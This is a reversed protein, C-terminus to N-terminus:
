SSPNVTADVDGRNYPSVINEESAVPSSLLGILAEQFLYIASAPVKFALSWHGLKCAQRDAAIPRRAGDADREFVENLSHVLTEDRGAM